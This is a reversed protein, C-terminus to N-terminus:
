LIYKALDQKKVLDALKQQVDERDIVHRYLSQGERDEGAAAAAATAAAAPEEGDAATAAAVKDPAEFSIDEVLRELVTHLRRAGINEVEKNIQEAIAAVEQIAAPTFVLDVGECGLLRQQQYIMNCEPETLIREFDAATLGRLEVRIPLRGQLEAMMDSPKASTFAGSAIFLVHDTAVPGHKTSVVSGEILPLLDRQVGEASPDSGHRLMGSPNVIKDIEDIFVIGEQEAVRVAEKSLLEAPFARDAEAEELYPRAEAVSMSRREGRARSGGGPGGFMGIINISMSAQGGQITLGGPEGTNRSNPVNVEIIADELEGARYRERAEHLAQLSAGEGLIAHLIHSEVAEAIRKAAARRCRAKVTNLAVEVLDRVISDVDRGHYGVETFKTAEVKIFPAEALKALRRAIETKGCGTPGILLLNKPSIEERMEPDEVRQRRWRNRFAVAVARKADDQGVIVRDLREVVATPTLLAQSEDAELAKRLEELM